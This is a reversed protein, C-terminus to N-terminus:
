LWGRVVKFHGYVHLLGPFRDYKERDRYLSSLTHASCDHGPCRFCNQKRRASGNAIVNTPLFISQFEGESAFIWCASVASKRNVSLSIGSGGKGRPHSNGRSKGVYASPLVTTLKRRASPSGVTLLWEMLSVCEDLLLQGSPSRNRVNTRWRIFSVFGTGSINYYWFNPRDVIDWINIFILGISMRWFGEM